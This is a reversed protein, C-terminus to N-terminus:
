LNNYRLFIKKIKDITNEDFETVKFEKAVLDFLLYYRFSFYYVLSYKKEKTNKQIFFNLLYKLIKSNKYDALNQAGWMLLRYDACNSYNQLEEIKNEFSKKIWSTVDGSNWVNTCFGQKDIQWGCSKIKKEYKEIKRSDMKDYAEENYTGVAHFYSEDGILTFEIGVSNDESKFDPKDCLDLKGYHETSCILEFVDKAFPEFQEKTYIKAM